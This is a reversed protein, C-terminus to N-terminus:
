PALAERVPLDDVTVQDRMLEVACIGTVWAQEYARVVARAYPPPVQVTDFAPVPTWGLADLFEAGTPTQAFLRYLVTSEPRRRRARLCAVSEM